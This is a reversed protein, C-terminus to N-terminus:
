KRLIENFADKGLRRIISDKSTKVSESHGQVGFFWVIEWNFASSDPLIEVYPKLYKIKITRQCLKENEIQIELSPVRGPCSQSPIWPNRYLRSHHYSLFLEICYCLNEVDGTQDTKDAQGNHDESSLHANPVNKSPFELQARPTHLGGHSYFLGGIVKLVARTQKQAQSM